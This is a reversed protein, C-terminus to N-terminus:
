DMFRGHRLMLNFSTLFEGPFALQYSIITSAVTALRHAKSLPISISAKLDEEPEDTGPTGKLCKQSERGAMNIASSLVYKDPFHLYQPWSTKAFHTEPPLPQGALVSRSTMDASFASLWRRDLFGAMSDTQSIGRYELHLDLFRESSVKVQSTSEESFSSIHIDNQEQLAGSPHFARDQTKLQPIEKIPDLPPYNLLHLIHLTTMREVDTLRKTFYMNARQSATITSFSPELPITQLPVTAVCNAYFCLSEINPEHLSRTLVYDETSFTDRSRGTSYSSSPETFKMSSTIECASVLSNRSMVAISSMLTSWSTIIMSNMWFTEYFTSDKTHLIQDSFENSLEMASESSRPHIHNLKSLYGAAQWKHDTFEQDFSTVSIDLSGHAFSTHRKTEPIVSSRVFDVNAKLTATSLFVFSALPKPLVWDKDISRLFVASQQRAEELPRRSYISVINAAIRTPWFRPSHLSYSSLELNAGPLSSIVFSKDTASVALNKHNGVSLGLVPPGPVTM